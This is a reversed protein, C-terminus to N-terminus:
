LPFSLRAFKLTPANFMLKCCVAPLQCSEAWLKLSSVEFEFSFYGGRRSTRKPTKGFLVGFVGRILERGVQKAVPSSL